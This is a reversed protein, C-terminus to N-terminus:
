NKLVHDLSKGVMFYCMLCDLNGPFMKKFLVDLFIIKVYCIKKLRINVKVDKRGCKEWFQCFDMVTIEDYETDLKRERWGKGGVPQQLDESYWM